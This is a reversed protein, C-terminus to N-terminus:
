KPNATADTKPAQDKTADKPPNLGRTSMREESVKDGAKPPQKKQPQSSKEASGAKPPTKDCDKSSGSKGDTQKGCDTKSASSQPEPLWPYALAAGPSAALLLMLGALGLSCLHKTM